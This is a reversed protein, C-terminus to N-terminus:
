SSLFYFFWLSRLTGILEPLGGCAQLGLLSASHCNSFYAAFICIFEVGLLAPIPASRNAAGWHKRAEIDEYKKLVEESVAYMFTDFLIFYLVSTMKNTCM